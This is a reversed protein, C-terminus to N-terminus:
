EPNILVVDTNNSDAYINNTKLNDVRFILASTFCIAMVYFVLVIKNKKIITM